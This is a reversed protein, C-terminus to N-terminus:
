GRALFPQHRLLALRWGVLADLRVTVRLGLAPFTHGVLAAVAVEVGLADPAPLVLLVPAVEDDLGRRKVDLLLDKGLGEDVVQQALRALAALLGALLDGVEEGVEVADRLAHVFRM